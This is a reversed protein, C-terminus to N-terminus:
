CEEKIKAFAWRKTQGHLLNADIGPTMHPFRFNRM